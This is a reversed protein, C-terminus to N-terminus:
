SAQCEAIYYLTGNIRLRLRGKPAGPIVADHAEFTWKNAGGDTSYSDANVPADLDISVAAITLPAYSFIKVTDALDNYDLLLEIDGDNWEISFLGKVGAPAVTEQILFCTADRGIEIVNEPDNTFQILRSPGNFIVGSADLVVAGAGAYAKGDSAQLYFQKTNDSSFGAVESPTIEIREGTMSSLFRFGGDLITHMPKQIAAIDVLPRQLGYAQTIEFPTVIRGFVAFEAFAWGPQNGEQVSSGLNWVNLTHSTQANTSRGVQKGDVYMTYVDEAFDLTVWIDLWDGKSFAFEAPHLVTSNSGLVVSFRNTNENYRVLLYTNGLDGSDRADMITQAYTGAPWEVDHDYPAQVVFRFSLTDNNAILNAAFDDLLLYSKTRTSISDHEDGTWEYGEGANGHIFTSPYNKREVNVAGFSIDLEDGDDIATVQVWVRVHDTTAPLGTKAYTYRYLGGRLTQASIYSAITGGVNTKAQIILRLTCGSMAGVIDVSFSVNDAEGFSAAATDAYYGISAGVDGAEGTYSFQQLWGRIAVPHEAVSESIAGAVDETVAWGDARDDANGDYMLPNEWRNLGAEEIVIAKTGPWRGQVLHLSGRDEAAAANVGIRVKEGRKGHLYNATAGATGEQTIGIPPNLLLLGDSADFFTGGVSLFPFRIIDDWEKLGRKESAMAFTPGRTGLTMQYVPEGQAFFIQMERIVLPDDGNSISNYGLDDCKFDIEDGAVAGDHSTRVVYTIQPDKWKTLVAEARQQMESLKVLSQDTVIAARIGYLAQSAGNNVPHLPVQDAGIVRVQNIIQTGDIKKEVKDHYSFSTVDNPEDSLDFGADHGEDTSYHLFNDNDVYWRAGTRECISDLITAISMETFSILLPDVILDVHVAANIGGVYTNFLDLIIDKDDMDDDANYEAYEVNIEGLRSGYGHCKFKLSRSGGKSTVIDQTAIFGSFYNTGGDVITIEDAADHSGATIDIDSDADFLTLEATYVFRDALQTIDISDFKTVTTRNVGAITVVLAM